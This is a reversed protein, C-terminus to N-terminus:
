RSSGGPPPSASGRNGCPDPRPASGPASVRLVQAGLGDIGARVRDGGALYGGPKGAAARELEERRFQEFPSRLRLLGRATVTLPNPAQLAVGEPTGTLVISGAPLRPAEADIALPYHRPRGDRLVPMPTRLGVEQVEEGLRELLELPDLIMQSTSADQRLRFGDGEDVSLRIGLGDAGCAALAEFLETGRVLWPGLPLFGPQGKGEVFGTGPGTLAKHRIIPERDSVENAVFFAVAELLERRSPLRRLNLDALLVFGLEVEYDLLTVGGPIPIEGYPPTPAVPKPFLFVDGGGAEEAHAAYNLGAAVVVRQEADIEEQTLPVPACIRSASENDRLQWIPSSGEPAPRGARELVAGLHPAPDSIPSLATPIGDAEAVVRAYVPHGDPALVRVVRPLNRQALCLDLASRLDEGQTAPAGLLLLLLFTAAFIRHRLLREGDQEKVRHCDASVFAIRM